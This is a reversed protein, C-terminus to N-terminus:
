GAAVQGATVGVYALAQASTVKGSPHNAIWYVDSM